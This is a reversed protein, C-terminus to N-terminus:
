FANAQGEDCVELIDSVALHDFKLSFVDAATFKSSM